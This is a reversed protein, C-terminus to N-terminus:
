DFIVLVQKKTKRGKDESSKKKSGGHTDELPNRVDLGLHGPRL